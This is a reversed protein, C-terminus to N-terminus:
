EATETSMMFLASAEVIVSDHQLITAKLWWGGGRCQELWARVSADTHLRLPRRYRIELKATMAVIGAAFLVNCMAADCIAAAIGGHMMGDFGTSSPGCRFDARISGDAEPWFDLQPVEAQARGCLRCDAHARLRTRDHRHSANPM